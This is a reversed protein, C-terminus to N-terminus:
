RSYYDLIRKKPIILDQEEKVEKRYNEINPKVQVSFEKTTGKSDEKYTEKGTLFTINYKNQKEKTKKIKQYHYLYNKEKSEICFSTGPEAENIEPKSEEVVKKALETLTPFSYNKYKPKYKRVTYTLLLKTKGEDEIPRYTKVSLGEKELIKEIPILKQKKRFLKKITVKLPYIYNEPLVMTISSDKKARQIVQPIRRYPDEGTDVITSYEEDETELEGIRYTTYPMGKKVTNKKTSKKIASEETKTESTQPIIAKAEIKKGEEKARGAVYLAKPLSEKGLFLIRSNEELKERVEQYIEEPDM